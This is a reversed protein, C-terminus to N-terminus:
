GVLGGLHGENMTLSKIKLYDNCEIHPQLWLRSSLDCATSVSCGPVRLSKKYRLVVFFLYTLVMIEWIKGFKKNLSFLFSQYYKNNMNELKRYFWLIVLKRLCVPSLFSCNRQYWLQKTDNILYSGCPVKMLFM